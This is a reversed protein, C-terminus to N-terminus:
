TTCRTRDAAGRVRARRPLLSVCVPAREAAVCELSARARAASAAAVCQCCGCVPLLWVRAAAVSWARVPSAAVCLRLLLWVSAAAVCQCCGCELRAGTFCAPALRARARARVKTCRTSASCMLGDCGSILTAQPAIVTRVRWGDGDANVRRAGQVNEQRKTVHCQVLTTLAISIAHMMVCPMFNRADDRVAFSSRKRTFLCGEKKKVCTKFNVRERQPHPHATSLM